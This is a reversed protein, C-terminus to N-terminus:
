GISAKLEETQCLSSKVSFGLKYSARSLFQFDFKGSYKPDAAYIHSYYIITYTDIPMNSYEWDWALNFKSKEGIKATRM